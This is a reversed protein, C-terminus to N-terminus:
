NAHNAEPPLPIIQLMPTLSIDTSLL